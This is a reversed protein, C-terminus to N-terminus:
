PAFSGCCVPCPHRSGTEVRVGARYERDARLPVAGRGDGCQAGDDSVCPCTCQRHGHQWRVYFMRHKHCLLVFAPHLKPRTSYPIGCRSASRSSSALQAAPRSPRPACCLRRALLIAGVARDTTKCKAVQVLVKPQSMSIRIFAVSDPKCMRSIGIGYRRRISLTDM